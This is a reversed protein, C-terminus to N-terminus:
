PVLKILTQVYGNIGALLFADFIALFAGQLILGKGIGQLGESRIAIQPLLFVIGIAVTAFDSIWFGTVLQLNSIGGKLAAGLAEPVAPNRQTILQIGGILLNVIGWAACIGGFSQWQGSARLYVAGGAVLNIGGWIALVTLATHQFSQYTTFAERM